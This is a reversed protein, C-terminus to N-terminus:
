RVIEATEWNIVQKHGRDRKKRRCWSVVDDTVFFPKRRARGVVSSRKRHDRQSEVVGSNWNTLNVQGFYSTDSRHHGVHRSSRDSLRTVTVWQGRPGRDDPVSGPYRDLRSRDAERNKMHPFSFSGPFNFVIIIFVILSIGMRGPSFFTNRLKFFQEERLECTECPVRDVENANRLNRPRSKGLRLVLKNTPGAFEYLKPVGIAEDGM